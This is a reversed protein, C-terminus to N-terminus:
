VGHKSREATVAVAYEHAWRSYMEELGAIDRSALTNSWNKGGIRRRAEENYYRYRVNTSGLVDAICEAQGQYWKRREEAAWEQCLVMREYDSACRRLQDAKSPRALTHAAEVEYQRPRRSFPWM